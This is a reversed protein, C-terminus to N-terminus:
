VVSKRDEENTYFRFQTVCNYHCTNVLSSTFPYAKPFSSEGPDAFLWLKITAVLLRPQTTLRSWEVRETLSENNFIECTLYDVVDIKLDLILDM